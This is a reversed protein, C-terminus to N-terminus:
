WGMLSFAVTIISTSVIIGVISVVVASTTAQGVAEASRGCQIGQYCGTMSIVIGFVFAHFLGIWLFKLNMYLLTNDIYQASSIDLMLVGVIYGGFIGMLNAYLTLLPTMITLAIVRPLVLFDYPSIGFTKLADVEENVQMTGIIAAFSAGTRGALVIGTMLAGMIRVMSLGVLSAVYVEAGFLKLQIAGVFALILGLLLSTLSVIALSNAGCEFLAAWLDEKYMRSKGRFLRGFANVTEYIFEIAKEMNSPMDLVAGGVMELFTTKDEHSQSDRNPAVTLALTLLNELDKPTNKVAFEVNGFYALHGIKVLFALFSSDWKTLNKCDISLSSIKKNEISKSINKEIEIKISDLNESTEATWVDKFLLICSMTSEERHFYKNKDITIKEKKKM